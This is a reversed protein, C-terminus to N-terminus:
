IEPSLNYEMSSLCFTADASSLEGGNVANQESHDPMPEQWSLTSVTFFRQELGAHYRSPKM